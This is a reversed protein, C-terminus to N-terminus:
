PAQGKTKTIAANVAEELDDGTRLWTDPGTQFHNNKVYQWNAAAYILERSHQLVMDRLAISSIDLQIHDLLTSDSRQMAARAADFDDQLQRLKDINM